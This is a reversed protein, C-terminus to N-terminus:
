AFEQHLEVQSVGRAQLFEVMELLHADAAIDRLRDLGLKLRKGGGNASQILTPLDGPERQFAQGLVDFAFAGEVDRHVFADVGADAEGDAVAGVANGSVEFAWDRKAAVAAAGEHIRVTFGSEAQEGLDGAGLM